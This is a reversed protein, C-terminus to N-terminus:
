QRYIIEVKEGSLIMEKPPELSGGYSLPPERTPGLVSLVDYRITTTPAPVPTQSNKDHNSVQSENIFPM